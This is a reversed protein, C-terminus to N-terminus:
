EAASLRMAAREVRCALQQQVPAINKFNTAENINLLPNSCRPSCGDETGNVRSASTACIISQRGAGAFSMKAVSASAPAAMVASISPDARPRTGRPPEQFVPM